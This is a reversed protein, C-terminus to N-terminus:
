FYLDIMIGLNKLSNNLITPYKSNTRFLQNRPILLRIGIDSYGEQVRLRKDTASTREGYGPEGKIPFAYSSNGGIELLFIERGGSRIRFIVITIWQILVM